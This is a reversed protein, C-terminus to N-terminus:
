KKARKLIACVDKTGGAGVTLNPLKDPSFGTQSARLEYTGPKVTLKFLGGADTKTSPGSEGVQVTAGKIPSGNSEDVVVGRLIANGQAAVPRAVLLALLLVVGTVGLLIRSRLKM